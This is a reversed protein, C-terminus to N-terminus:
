SSSNDVSSSNIRSVMDCKIENEVAFNEWFCPSLKVITMYSCSLHSNGLTFREYIQCSLFHPVRPGSFHITVHKLIVTIHYDHFNLNRISFLIETCDLVSNSLKLANLFLCYSKSRAMIPYNLPLCVRGWLVLYYINLAKHAMCNKTCGNLKRHDHPVM